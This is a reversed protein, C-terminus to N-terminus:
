TTLTASKFSSFTEFKLSANKKKNDLTIGKSVESKLTDLKSWYFVDNNLITLTFILKLMTNWKLKNSELVVTEWKAYCNHNKTVVQKLIFKNIICTKFQFKKFRKM